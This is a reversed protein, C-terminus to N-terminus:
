QNSNQSCLLAPTARRSKSDEWSVYPYSKMNLQTEQRTCKVESLILIDSKRTQYLRGRAARHLERMVRDRCPALFKCDDVFHQVTEAGDCCLVCRAWTPPWHLMRGVTALVMLHGLRVKTIMRTGRINSRDDLYRSIGGPHPVSGILSTHEAIAASTEAAARGLVETGVARDWEAKPGARRGLWEEAFGYSVLLEQMSRLGSFKACGAIVEAHRRRFLLSVLRERPAACMRASWRMKLTQRRFKLESLGLEARVGVAAPNAHLGLAAKGCRYQRWSELGRTLCRGKGSSM